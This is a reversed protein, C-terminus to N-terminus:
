ATLLNSWYKHICDGIKNSIEENDSSQAGNFMFMDSSEQPDMPLVAEQEQSFVFVGMCYSLRSFRQPFAQM